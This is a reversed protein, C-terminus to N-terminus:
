WNIDLMEEIVPQESSVHFQAKGGVWKFEYKLANLV